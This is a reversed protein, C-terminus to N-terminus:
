TPPLALDIHTKPALRYTCSQLLRAIRATLLGFCRYIM